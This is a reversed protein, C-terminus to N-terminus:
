ELRVTQQVGLFLLVGVYILCMLLVKVVKFEKEHDERGHSVMEDIDNKLSEIESNKSLLENDRIRLDRMMREVEDDCNGLKRERRELHAEWNKYDRMKKLHYEDKEKCERKLDEEKRKTEWVMRWLMEEVEDKTPRELLFKRGSPGVGAM